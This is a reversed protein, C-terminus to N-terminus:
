KESPSCLPFLEGNLEDSAIYTVFSRIPKSVWATLGALDVIFPRLKVGAQFFESEVSGLQILISRCASLNHKYEPSEVKNQVRNEIDGLQKLIAVLMAIQDVCEAATRESLATSELHGLVELLISFKQGLVIVEEIHQGIFKRAKNGDLPTLAADRTEKQALTNQHAWGAIFAEQLYTAM